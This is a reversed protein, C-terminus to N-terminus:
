FTLVGLWDIFGHGHSIEKQTASFIGQSEAAIRV